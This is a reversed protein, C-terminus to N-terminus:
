RTVGGALSTGTEYAMLVKKRVDDPMEGAETVAGHTLVRALDEAATRLSGRSFPADVFVALTESYAYYPVYPFEAHSWGDTHEFKNLFPAFKERVTKRTRELLEKEGYEVKMLVPVIELPRNARQSMVSQAVAASGDITPMSPTFCIVLADPMVVTCIGSTDSLGTRSDILVFDYDDLDRKMRELLDRGGLRDFFVNWHFGNVRVAYSEDQRGAGVLDLTGGAPFEWDVSSAYHLITKGTRGGGSAAHAASEVLFDMLGSTQALEPDYLFPRVYRQLNPAELDWDIMLVRRGNNALIWAVNALAMSRGVGGKYSYFTVIRANM